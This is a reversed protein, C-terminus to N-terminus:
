TNDDENDEKEEEEAACEPCVESIVLPGWSNTSSLSQPYPGTDRIKKTRGCVPCSLYTIM